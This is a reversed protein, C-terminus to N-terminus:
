RTKAIELAIEAAADRLKESQPFRLLGTELFEACRNLDQMQAHISAARLFDRDTPDTQALKEEAAAAAERRLNLWVCAVILRDHPEPLRAERAIAKRLRELGKVTCGNRIQALGLKSELNAGFPGLKKTRRYEAEAQRFNGLDYYVDGLSEVILSNKPALKWGQHFAEFAERLRGLKRYMMGAFIWAQVFHPKLQCAIEFCRLASEVSTEVLGLELHAQADRPMEQVKQLSLERYYLNKRNQTQRDVALGFHHILFDARGLGGGTERVRLGVTEHVRGVFYLQPDARFLRVNEHDVYAPYKKFEPYPSINPKAPRDWIGENLSLFYNRIPVQYARFKQSGLLRPLRRVADPDLREDADLSLVWDSHVEALALNRARAFDNEWPISIVHAGLARALEITNDASGTDGIFIENAVGRVSEICAPLDRAADRVIMSLALNPM